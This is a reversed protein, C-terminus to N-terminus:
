GAPRVTVSEAVYQGHVRRGRVLVRAGVAV